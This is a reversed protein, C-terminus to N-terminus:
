NINDMCEQISGCGDFEASRLGSGYAWEEKTFVFYESGDTRVAIIFGKYEKVKKM